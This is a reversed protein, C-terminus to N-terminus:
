APMRLAKRVFLMAIEPDSTRATWKDKHTEVEPRAGLDEIRLKIAGCVSWGDANFKVSVSRSPNLPNSLSASKKSDSFVVEVGAAKALALLPDETSAARELLVEAQLRVIGVGDKLTTLSEGLLKEYENVKAMMHGVQGLRHEATAQDPKSPRNLIEAIDAILTNLDKHVSSALDRGVAERQEADDVVPVVRFTPVDSLDKAYPALTHVFKQLRRADDGRPAPVFYVAGNPHVPIQSLSDLQRMVWRQIEHGTLSTTFEAFDDRSEAEIACVERVGDPSLYKVEDFERWLMTGAAKDFTVEAVPVHGLKVAATDVREIVLQRVITDGTDCVPRMLFRTTRNEGRRTRTTTARRFADAKSGMEPTDKLGVGAAITALQSPQIAVDPLGFWVVYGLLGVKGDTVKSEVRDLTASSM